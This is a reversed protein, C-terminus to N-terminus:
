QVTGPLQANFGDNVFLRTHYYRTYNSSSHIASGAVRGGSSSGSSSGPDRVAAGPDAQGDAGSRSGARPAAGAPRRTRRRAGGANDAPLRTTSVQQHKTLTEPVLVLKM